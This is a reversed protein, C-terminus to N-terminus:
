LTGMDFYMAQTNGNDRESQLAKFGNKEYFPIATLYADVTIFRSTSYGTDESLIYKIFNMLESGLGHKRFELSVAFRGIKIAPYSGLHKAHPFSKKVKRWSGNTVEQRSIKDNFLCFYAIVKEDELVLYTKALRQAMFLKADEMLFGNLDDDGCDFPKLEYEATLRVINM